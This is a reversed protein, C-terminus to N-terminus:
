MRKLKKKAFGLSSTLPRALILGIDIIGPLPDDFSQIHYKVSPHFSKLYNIIAEKRTGILEKTVENRQAVLSEILSRTYGGLLRCKIGSKYNFVKAPNQGEAMQYLLYPFDVGSKVVVPLSGWFRGNIELFKFANDGSHKIYDLEAVGEWNLKKLLKESYDKLQPDIPKSEVYVPVGGNPPSNRLIKYQCCAIAEGKHMMIGFGNEEGGCYEQVIPFNSNFEFDNFYEKIKKFSAIYKIRFNLRKKDDKNDIVSSFPKIIVPFQLEKCSEIKSIGDIMISKPVPIGLSKAIETTKHKNLAINLRKEDQILLRAYQEIKERHKNLEVLINEAIAYVYHINNEQIIKLINNIFTDNNLNFPIVFGKTLYKSYLGVDTKNNGIGYIKIGRAGFSRIITLGIQTSVGIVLVSKNGNDTTAGM